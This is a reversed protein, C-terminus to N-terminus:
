PLSVANNDDNNNTKNTLLKTLLIRMLTQPQLVEVKIM